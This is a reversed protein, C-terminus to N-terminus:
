LSGKKILKEVWLNILQSITRKEREAMKELTKRNQSSLRFGIMTDKIEKKMIVEITTLIM